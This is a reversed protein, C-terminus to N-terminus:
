TNMAMPAMLKTMAKKPQQPEQNSDLHKRMMTRRIMLQILNEVRTQFHGAQKKKTSWAPPSATGWHIGAPNVRTRIGRHFRGSTPARALTRCRSASCRSRGPLCGPVTPRTWRPCAAPPPLNVHTISHVTRPIKMSLLQLCNKTISSVHLLNVFMPYMSKGVIRILKHSTIEIHNIFCSM